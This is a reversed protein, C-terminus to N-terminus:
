PTPRFKPESRMGPRPIGYAVPHGFFSFFNKKALVHIAFIVYAREQPWTTPAVGKMEVQSILFTPEVSKLTVDMELNAHIM